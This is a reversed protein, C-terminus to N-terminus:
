WMPKGGRIEDRLVVVMCNCRSCDRHISTALKSKSVWGEEVSSSHFWIRAPLLFLVLSLPIIRWKKPGDTGVGASMSGWRRTRYLQQVKLDWAPGTNILISGAWTSYIGKDRILNPPSNFETFLICCKYLNIERGTKNYPMMVMFNNIMGYVEPPGAHQCWCGQHRDGESTSWTQRMEHCWYWENIMGTKNCSM